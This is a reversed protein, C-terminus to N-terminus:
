KEQKIHKTYRIGKYEITWHDQEPAANYADLWKDTFTWYDESYILTFLELVLKRPMTDFRGYYAQGLGVMRMFNPESLLLFADGCTRVYSYVDHYSNGHQIAKNTSRIILGLLDAVADQMFADIKLSQEAFYVAGEHDTCWDSHEFQTILMDLTIDKIPLEDSDLTEAHKPLVSINANEINPLDDDRALRMAYTRTSEAIGFEAECWASFQGHPLLSKAEILVNGFAILEDRTRRLHIRGQTALEQLRDAQPLTSYDFPVINQETM